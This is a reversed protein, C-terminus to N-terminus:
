DFVHVTVRETGIRAEFPKIYFLSWLGQVNVQAPDRETGSFILAKSGATGFNPKGDHGNVNTQRIAESEFQSVKFKKVYSERQERKVTLGLKCRVCRVVFFTVNM